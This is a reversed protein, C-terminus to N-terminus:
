RLHMKRLEITGCGLQPNGLGVVVEVHVRNMRRHPNANGCHIEDCCGLTPKLRDVVLDWLSIPGGQTIHNTFAKALILMLKEKALEKLDLHSARDLFVYIFENIKHLM